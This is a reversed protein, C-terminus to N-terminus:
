RPWWVSGRTAEIMRKLWPTSVFCDGRTRDQRDEPSAFPEGHLTHHTVSTMPAPQAPLEGSGDRDTLDDTPTDCGTGDTM